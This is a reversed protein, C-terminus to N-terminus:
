PSGADGYLRVRWFEAGGGLPVRMRIQEQTGKAVWVTAVRSGTEQAVVWADVMRGDVARVRESGTVRITYDVFRKGPNYGRFTASFGPALPLSQLVLDDVTANFVPAPLPVQVNRAASDKPTITGRVSGAAFDFSETQTALHSRYTLPALTRRRVVSSDVDVGAANDYRQVVRVIAEGGETGVEVTRTLLAMPTQKGGRLTYLVFRETRAGIRAAGPLPAGPAVVM